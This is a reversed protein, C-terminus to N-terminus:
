DRVKRQFEDLDKFNKIEGSVTNLIWSWVKSWIDYSSM